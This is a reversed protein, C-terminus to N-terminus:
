KAVRAQVQVGRSTPLGMARFFSDLKVVTKAHIGVLADLTKRLGKEEKLM